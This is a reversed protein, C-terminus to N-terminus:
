YIVLDADSGVAITGKKPYMGFIKAPNLSTVRVIGNLTMHHKVGESLMLLMREEIGTGGNPIKSFDHLGRKKEEFSFPCHDTAVVQLTGDWLREWLYASDEQKRLPPSMVYKAGEFDPKDYASDDLFLYQPCTEALVPQGAEQAEKVRKVGEACTNHVIYVPAGALQALKIVRNVAEAECAAPRSIPHYKPETKHAALLKETRHRIVYYNECHVTVIGGCEKSKELIKLLEGDDVRMDYVLYVKFSTVGEAMMDDMELLTEEDARVVAMHLGYDICAKEGKQKWIRLGDKLTGGKPQCAYDIFSTTGGIAAAISGTEFDDASTLTDDLQMDLHTHVDIGGPLVYKGSADIVEDAHLDKGIAAIEGNRIGIDALYTDSATIITGNKIVRDFVEMETVEQGKM